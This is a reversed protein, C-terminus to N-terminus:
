KNLRNLAENLDVKYTFVEQGFVVKKDILKVNSFSDRIKTVTDFDLVEKNSLDHMHDNYPKSFGRDDMEKLQLQIGYRNEKPYGAIVVQAYNPKM